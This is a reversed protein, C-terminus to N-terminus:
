FVIGLSFEADIGMLPRLFDDIMEEEDVDDYLDFEDLDYQMIPIGYGIRVDMNFRNGFVWRRGFNAGVTNVIISARQTELLLEEMMVSTRGEFHMYRFHVAWFPSNIRNHKQLFHIHHRYHIGVGHIVEYEGPNFFGELFISHKPRFNCEYNLSIAGMAAGIVNINVAHLVKKDRLKSVSKPPTVRESKELSVDETVLELEEEIDEAFLANSYILVLLTALVRIM